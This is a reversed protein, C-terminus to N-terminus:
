ALRPLDITMPDLSLLTLAEAVMTSAQRRSCATNFRVRRQVGFHGLPFDGRYAVSQILQLLTLRQLV